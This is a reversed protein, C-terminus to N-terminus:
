IVRSGILNATLIFWCAKKDAQRVEYKGRSNEMSHDAVM